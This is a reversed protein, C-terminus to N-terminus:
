NDEFTVFGSETQVRGDIYIKLIKGWGVLIDDKSYTTVIGSADQIYALQDIVGSMKYKPKYYKKEVNREVPAYDEADRISGNGSSRDVTLSLAKTEPERSQEKLLEEVTKKKNIQKAIPNSTAKRDSVSKQLGQVADSLEKQEVKSTPMPSKSQEKYKNELESIRQNYKAENEESKEIMRKSAKMTVLMKNNLDETDKNVKEQFAVFQSSLNNFDNNLKEIAKLANDANNNKSNAKNVELVLSNVTSGMSKMQNDFYSKDVYNVSPAVVPNQVIPDPTVVANQVKTTKTKESPNIESDLNLLEDQSVEKPKSEVTKKSVQTKKPTQATENVDYDENSSSMTSYYYLGGLGLAAIIALPILAKKFMSPEKNDSSKLKNRNRGKKNEDTNQSLNSLNDDFDKKIDDDEESLEKDIKELEELDLDELEDETFNNRMEERGQNNDLLDIDNLDLDENNINQHNEFFELDEQNKNENGLNLNEDDMSLDELEKEIDIDKFSDLDFDDTDSNLSDDEKNTVDFSKENSVNDVELDAELEEFNLDEIESEIDIDQKIDDNVEDSKISDKNKNDSEEEFDIDFDEEESVEVDEIESIDIEDFDVVPEVFDEKEFEIKSNDEIINEKTEKDLNSIEDNDLDFDIELDLDEEQEQEQKVTDEKSIINNEISDSDFDLELDFSESEEKDEKSNHSPESLDLDLDFSEEEDKNEEKSNNSPEDLDLELDLDIDEEKSNENENAIFDNIDEIDIDEIENIKEETADFDFDELILEEDEENVVNEKEKENSIASNKNKSNTIEELDKEFDLDSIEDLELKTSNDNEFSEDFSVEEFDFDEEDSNSAEIEKDLAELDELSLDNIDEVENLNPKDKKTTM